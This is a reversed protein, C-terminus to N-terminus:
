LKSAPATGGHIIQDMLTEAAVEPSWTKVREDTALYAKPFGAVEREGLVMRAIAEGSLWCKDV